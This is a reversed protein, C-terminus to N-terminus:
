KKLNNFLSDIEEKPVSNLNGINQDSIPVQVNFDKAPDNSSDAKKVIKYSYGFIWIAVAIIFLVIALVYIRSNASSCCFGSTKKIKTSNIAM